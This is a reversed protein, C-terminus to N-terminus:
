KTLADPLLAHWAKHWNSEVDVRTTGSWATRFGDPEVFRYHAYYSGAAPRALKGGPAGFDGRAVIQRFDADAAL